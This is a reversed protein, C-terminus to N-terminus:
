RAHGSHRKRCNAWTNRWTWPCSSHIEPKDLSLGRSFTHDVHHFSVHGVRLLRWPAYYSCTEASSPSFREYLIYTSPTDSRPTTRKKNVCSSSYMLITLIYLYLINFSDTCILINLDDSFYEKALCSSEDTLMIIKLVHYLKKTSMSCFNMDVQFWFWTSIALDHWCSMSRWVCLCRLSMICNKQQCPVFNM